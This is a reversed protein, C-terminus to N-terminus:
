ASQSRSCRSNRRAIRPSTSRVSWQASAILESRMTNAASSLMRVPCTTLSYIRRCALASARDGAIRAGSAPRKKGWPRRETGSFWAIDFSQRSQLGVTAARAPASCSSLLDPVPGFLRKDPRFLCLVPSSVLACSRARGPQLVPGSGPNGEGAGRLVGSPLRVFPPDRSRKQMRKADGAKRTLPRRSRFTLAQASVSTSRKSVRDLACDGSM